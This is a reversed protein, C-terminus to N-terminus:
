PDMTQQAAETRAGISVLADPNWHEIALSLLESASGANMDASGQHLRHLAERLNGVAASDDIATAGAQKSLKIGRDDFVLPAHAYSPPPSNLCSFLELQAFTQPLLDAGRVVHSINQAADDVVVALAYAYLGDKRKLVLDGPAGPPPQDGLFEDHFGTGGELLFRRSSLDDDRPMCRNLCNGGPGLTARTCCCAFVRGTNELAALAETYADLRTSQFLVTDDWLLGHAELSRLISDAAGPVERPPDLDEIRLLWSGGAARAPLYSAVAALLSGKHLPGTPSPAFRGRYNPLLGM